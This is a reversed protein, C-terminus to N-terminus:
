ERQVGHDLGVADRQQAALWLQHVVGEALPLPWFIARQGTQRM